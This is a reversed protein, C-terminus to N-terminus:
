KKNKIIQKLFRYVLFAFILAFIILIYNKNIISLYIFYILFIIIYSIFSFYFINHIKKAINDKKCILFINELIIVIVCIIFPIMLIKIILQSKIFAILLLILALLGALINRLKLVLQIKDM